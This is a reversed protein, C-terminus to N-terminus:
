KATPFAAKIEDCLECAAATKHFRVYYVARGLLSALELERQQLKQIRDYYSTMTSVAEDKTLRLWEIEEGASVAQGEANARESEIREIERIYSAPPYPCGADLHENQLTELFEGWAEAKEAGVGYLDDLTPSERSM